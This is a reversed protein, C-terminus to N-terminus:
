AIDWELHVHPMRLGKIINKLIRFWGPRAWAEMRFCGEAKAWKTLDLMYHAWQDYNRGTCIFVSGVRGVPYNLVESVCVCLVAEGEVALWLQMRRDLIAEKISEVTYRGGRSLARAIEPAAKDWWEGVQDAPVPVLM